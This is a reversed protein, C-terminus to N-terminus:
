TGGEASGGGGRSGWEIGGAERGSQIPQLTEIPSAESAIQGAQPHCGVLPKAVTNGTPLACGNM